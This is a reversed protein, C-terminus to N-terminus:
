SIAEPARVDFAYETCGNNHGPMKAVTKEACWWGQRKLCAECTSIFTIAIKPWNLILAAISFVLVVCAFVACSGM